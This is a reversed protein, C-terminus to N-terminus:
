TEATGSNVRAVAILSLERSPNGGGERVSRQRFRVNGRGPGGHRLQRALMSPADAGNM